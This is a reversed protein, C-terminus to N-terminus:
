KEDIPEFYYRPWLPWEGGKEGSEYYNIKLKLGMRLKEPEIHEITSLIRGGEELEVIGMIYPTKGEFGPPAVYIVTWTALRGLGKSPAWILNKSGCRPCITRPSGYVSRCENCRTLYLARSSCKRYFGEISPEEKEM